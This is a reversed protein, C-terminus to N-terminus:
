GVSVPARERSRRRHYHMLINLHVNGSPTEFCLVTAESDLGAQACQEETLVEPPFVKFQFGRDNLQTVANGIVMNALESVTEPVIPESSDVDAGSIYSAIQAAARPEMDLIVRGEIEGHFVVTAAAGRKRYGEEEMTLDAITATSKTMESLVTDLSGIFPQILDMRM